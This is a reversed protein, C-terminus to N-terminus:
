AARGHNQHFGYQREAAKRVAIAEVKSAYRGLNVWGNNVGIGVVWLNFVTSWCVGTVGSKNNKALAANRSNGLSDVERLNSIRNDARDGNIHDIQGAVAAGYHLGWGIRHGLHNLGAICICVYGRSGPGICGAVHGVRYRQWRTFSRDDAFDSRPRDLWTLNGSEPDYSLLTRLRDLPIQKM